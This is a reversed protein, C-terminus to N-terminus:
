PANQQRFEGSRLRFPIGGGPEGPMVTRLSGVLLGQRQEQARKAARASIYLEASEGFTGYFTPAAKVEAVAANLVRHAKVAAARLPPKGHM